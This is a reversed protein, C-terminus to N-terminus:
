WENYTENQSNKHEVVPQYRPILPPGPNWM